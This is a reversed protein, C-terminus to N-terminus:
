PYPFSYPCSHNCPNCDTLAANENVAKRYVKVSVAYGDSVIAYGFQSRKKKGEAKSLHFYREWLERNDKPNVHNHTHSLTHAHTQTRLQTDTLTHTNQTHTHTHTILGEQSYIL